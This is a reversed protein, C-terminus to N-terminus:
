ESPSRRSPDRPIRLRLAPAPLNRTARGSAAGGPLGPPQEARGGVSGSTRIERM